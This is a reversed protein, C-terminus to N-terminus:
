FTIGAKVFPNEMEIYTRVFVNILSEYESQQSNIIQKFHLSHAQALVDVSYIVTPIAIHATKMGNEIIHIGIAVLKKM